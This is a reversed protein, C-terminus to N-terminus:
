ETEMPFLQKEVRECRVTFRTQGGVTCTFLTLPCGSETMDEIATPNLVEVDSVRYYFRNGNADTFGRRWSKADSFVDGARSACPIALAAALACAALIRANGNTGDLTLTLSDTRM